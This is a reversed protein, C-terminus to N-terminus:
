SLSLPATIWQVFVSQTKHWFEYITFETRASTFAYFRVLASKFSFPNWFIECSTISWFCRYFPLFKEFLLSLNNKSSTLTLTYCLSIIRWYFVNKYYRNTWFTCYKYKSERVQKNRWISDLWNLCRIILRLMCKIRERGIWVQQMNSRGLPAFVKMELSGRHTKRM